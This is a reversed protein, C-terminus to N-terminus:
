IRSKSLPLCATYSRGSHAYGCSAYRPSAKALTSEELTGLGKAGGQRGLGEKAVWLTQEGNTGDESESSATIGHATPTLRTPKKNTRRHAEDGSFMGTLGRRVISTGRKREVARAASHVSM